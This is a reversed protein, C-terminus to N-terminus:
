GHEEVLAFAEDWLTTDVISTYEPADADPINGLRVQEAVTADIKEQPLGHRDLPWFELELFDRLAARSVEESHGTAGTIIDVVEDEHAPDQMYRIAETMAALARVLEARQADVTSALAWVVLYHQTPDIDALMTVVHMPNEGQEEIVYLDDIHIVSNDLQGAAVAQIASPGPFSPTEVDDIGLGCSDLVIELVSYRAGGVSDVAIDQGALDACSQVAPDVSGVLWDINDMGMIASVDVGTGAFTVVPGTPSYALDLDGSQVARAADVGTEMSRFTVEVGYKDFLGTEDAVATHVMAYISPIGITGFTLSGVPELAADGGGGGPGDDSGQADDSGCAALTLTITALLALGSRGRHSRLTPHRRM